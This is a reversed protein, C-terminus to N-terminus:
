PCNANLDPHFLQLNDTIVGDVGAAEMLQKTELSNVTWPIVRAGREHYSDVLEKSVFSYHPTIIDTNLETLNDMALDLAHEDGILQSVRITPHRKRIQELVEVDFSQILLRHEEIGVKNIVKMVEKAFHSRSPYHDRNRSYKIEINFGVLLNSTTRVDKLSQLVEELTSLREGPVPQVHNPTRTGCDFKELKDKWDTQRFFVSKPAVAAGNEDNCEQKVYADHAVIVKNDKTMQLDMEIFDAGLKTACHFASLMNEPLHHAGRHSHIIWKKPTISAPRRERPTSSCSIAMVAIAIFFLLKM